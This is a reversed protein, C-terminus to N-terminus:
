QWSHELPESEPPPYHKSFLIKGNIHLHPPFNQKITDEREIKRIVKVCLAVSSGCMGLIAVIATLDFYNHPTLPIM